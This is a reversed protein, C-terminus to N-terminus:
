QVDLPVVEAISTNEESFFVVTILKQHIEGAAQHFMQAM